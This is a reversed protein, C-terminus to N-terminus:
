RGDKMATKVIPKEDTSQAKDKVIQLKSGTVSLALMLQKYAFREEDTLKAPADAHKTTPLKADSRRNNTSIETKIKVIQRESSRQRNKLTKATLDNSKEITSVGSKEGSSDNRNTVNSEIRNGSGSEISAIQESKLAQASENEVNTEDSSFQLSVAFVLAAFALSAAAYKFRFFQFRAPKAKFPLVKAEVAPAATERYRFAALANELREIEPDGGTKDWLYDENM